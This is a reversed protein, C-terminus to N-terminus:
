SADDFEEELFGVTFLSERRIFVLESWDGKRSLLVWPSRFVEGTSRAMFGGGTARTIRDQPQTQARLWGPSLKWTRVCRKESDLGGCGHIRVGIPFATDEGKSAYKGIYALAQRAWEIRTMGHPWWGAADPKPLRFGPPMFILVHFHLKGRKTLEAVWVYRFRHKRRRMHERVIKLFASIKLPSYEVGERFTLTVMAVRSPGCEQLLRAAEMVGRQMRNLRSQRPKVGIVTDNTPFSVLGSSVGGPRRGPPTDRSVGRKVGCGRDPTAAQNSAPDPRRRGPPYVARSRLRM